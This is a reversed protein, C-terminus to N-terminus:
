RQLASVCPRSRPCAALSRHAEVGGPAVPVLLRDVDQDQDRRDHDDAAQEDPDEGGAPSLTCIEGGFPATIAQRGITSVVDRARRLWTMRSRARRRLRRRRNTLKVTASTRIM